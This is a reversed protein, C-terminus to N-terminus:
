FLYPVLLLASGVTIYRNEERSEGYWKKYTCSDKANDEKSLNISLAINCKKWLDKLRLIDSHFKKEARPNIEPFDEIYTREYASEPLSIYPIDM